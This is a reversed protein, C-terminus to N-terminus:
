QGAFGQGLPIPLGPLYRKVLLWFVQEGVQAGEPAHATTEEPQSFLPVTPGQDVGNVAMM